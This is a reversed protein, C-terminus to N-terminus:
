PKKIQQIPHGIEVIRIPNYHQIVILSQDWGSHNPGDKSAKPGSDSTEFESPYRYPAISFKRV